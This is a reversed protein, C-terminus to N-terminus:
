PCRDKTVLVNHAFLGDQDFFVHRLNYGADLLMRTEQIDICNGKIARQSAFKRTEENWRSAAIAIEYTYTVLMGSRAVRTLKTIADVEIPMQKNM